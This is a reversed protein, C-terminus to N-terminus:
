KWVQRVGMWPGRTKFFAPIDEAFLQPEEFAAFLNVGLGMYVM